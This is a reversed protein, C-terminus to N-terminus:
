AVTLAKQVRLVERVVIRGLDKQGELRCFRGSQALGFTHPRASVVVGRMEAEFVKIGGLLNASM